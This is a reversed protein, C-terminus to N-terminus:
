AEEELLYAITGTLSDDALQVEFGAETCFRATREIDEQGPKGLRGIIRRLGKARAEAVLEQLLLQGFRADCFPFDLKISDIVLDSDLPHAYVEAIEANERPIYVVLNIGSADRETTFLLFHPGAAFELKYNCKNRRLFIHYIYQLETRLAKTKNLQAKFLESTDKLSQEIVAATESEHATASGICFFRRLGRFFVSGIM